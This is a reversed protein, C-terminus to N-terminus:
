NSAARLTFKPILVDFLEGDPRELTYTGEMSGEFTELVCHSSYEHAKGPEISPQQGVVGDGKVEKVEGTTDSILWHRRLLRVTDRGNNAIQVFYAFVFRHSAFNSQGDLYVPRVTVTINETTATYPQMSDSICREQVTNTYRAGAWQNLLIRGHFTEYAM